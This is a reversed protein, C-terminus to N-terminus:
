TNSSDCDPPSSGASVANIQRYAEYAVISVANALNISRANKGPMPIQYLSDRYEDYFEPPFGRHESGFVLYVGAQFTCSYLSNTGK